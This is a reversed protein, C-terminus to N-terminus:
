NAAAKRAFHSNLLSLLEPATLSYMFRYNKENFERLIQYYKEESLKHKLMYSKRLTSDTVILETYVKARDNELLYRKTYKADKKSKSLYFPGRKPSRTIDIYEDRFLNEYYQEITKERVTVNELLKPLQPLAILLPEHDYIPLEFSNYGIMSFVLTDLLAVNLSFSGNVNAATGQSTNKIQVSAYPLREFTASDIVIGKILAREQSFSLQYCSVIILISLLKKIM